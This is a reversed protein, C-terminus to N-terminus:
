VGLFWGLAGLATGPGEDMGAMRDATSWWAVAALAFLLAVLGLRARAAPIAPAPGGRDAVGGAATVDPRGPSTRPRSGRRARTPARSAGLWATEEVRPATPEM